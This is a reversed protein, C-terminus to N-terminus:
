LRRKATVACIHSAEVLSDMRFIKPSEVPTNCTGGREDFQGRLSTLARTWKMLQWPALRAESNKPWGALSLGSYGTASLADWISPFIARPVM